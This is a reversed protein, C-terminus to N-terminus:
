PATVPLVSKGYKEAIWRATQQSRLADNIKQLDEDDQQDKTTVFINAFPNNEASEILLADDFTLGSQLAYSGSIIAGAVDKDEVTRPSLMDDVRTFQLQKPNERIDEVKIQSLETAAPDLKIVGERDLLLLARGFNTSSLPLVLKAGDPIDAFSDYKKSYLTLPEVHVDGISVLSTNGVQHQWDELYPKHQFFNAAVDGNATALNAEEGSIISVQDIKIDGIQGSEQLYDLIEGHPTPVTAIKVENDGGSGACGSLALALGVIGAFITKKM